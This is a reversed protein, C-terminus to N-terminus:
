YHHHHCSGGGCGGGGKGGGGGGRDSTKMLMVLLAFAIIIGGVYMLRDSQIFIQIFGRVGDRPNFNVLDDLIDHVANTTRRALERVSLNYVKEEEFEALAGANADDSLGKIRKNPDTPLQPNNILQQVQM